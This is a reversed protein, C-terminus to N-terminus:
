LPLHSEFGRGKARSVSTRAWRACSPACCVGDVARPKPSRTDRWSAEECVGPAAITSRQHQSPPRDITCHHVTACGRADGIGVLVARALADFREGAGLFRFCRRWSWCSWCCAGRAPGTPRPTARRSQHGSAHPRCAGCSPPQPRRAPVAALHSRRWRPHGTPAAGRQFSRPILVLAGVWCRGVALRAQM